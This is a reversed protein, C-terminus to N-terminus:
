KVIHTSYYLKHEAYQITANQNTIVMYSYRIFAKYSQKDHNYAYM